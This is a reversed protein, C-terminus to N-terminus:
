GTSRARKRQSSRRGGFAEVGITHAMGRVYEDMNHKVSEHPRDTGKYTSTDDTYLQPSSNNASNGGDM